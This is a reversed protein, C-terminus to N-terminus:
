HKRRYLLITNDDRSTQPYQLNFDPKVKLISLVLETSIPDTKNDLLIYEVKDITQNVFDIVINRITSNLWIVPVVYADVRNSVQPFIRDVTLISASSPVMNVVEALSREHKGIQISTFSPFFITQVLCFPALFVFFALSFVAIKKVSGATNRHQPKGVFNKRLGFIAAAFIFSVVFAEYQHGLMHHALTQSLLSFGFWPITPILASPSKFSFFALPGFLVGLYALKILGDYTLAQLANLPRFIILLPIQLPDKAGLIAFNPSGLFEGIAGPNVPFFTNRQWLTFSYWVLSIVMTIIPIIVENESFRKKKIASIIRIRYKWAIYIGIFFTIFATQEQCMLLLFIFVFYKPWKEKTLYYLAYASFLPIFAEVHFDYLNVYQTAPYILYATSFLLGVTRGGAYENALKFIPVAALAMIFAQIVLLTEPTQLIWYFPLVLFLIPSFHVGFFSGSPNVVLECTYYFFKGANSTTWFSQTFIGLDWARTRFAYYRLVTLTFFVVGYAVISIILLIKSREVNGVKTRTRLWAELREISTLRGPDEEM